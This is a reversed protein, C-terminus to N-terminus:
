SSRNKRSYDLGIEGLAVVKPHRLANRLAQVVSVDFDEAFHPHCGFTFWVDKDGSFMDDFNKFMWLDPKCFVAICGKFNQPFEFPHKAKLEEFTSFNLGKAGVFEQEEEAKELRGMMFDLHCHTDFMEIFLKRM